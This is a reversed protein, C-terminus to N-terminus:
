AATSLLREEEAAMRQRLDLDLARCLGNLARWSLCAGMSSGGAGLSRLVDDLRLRLDQHEARVQTLARGADELGALLWGAEEARHKNLANELATLRGALGQVCGVRGRHRAEVARALRAAERLRDDFAHLEVDVLSDCRNPTADGLKKLESWLAYPDVSQRLAASRLTEGAYRHYNVGFRRLVATAGPRASAIDAIRDNMDM